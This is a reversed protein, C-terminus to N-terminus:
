CTVLDGDYEVKANPHPELKGDCGPNAEFIASSPRQGVRLDTSLPHYGLNARHLARKPKKIGRVFGGDFIIQQGSANERASAESMGLYVQDDKAGDTFRVEFPM